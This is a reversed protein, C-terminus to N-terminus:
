QSSTTTPRIGIHPINAAKLRDNFAAVDSRMIADLRERQAGFERMFMSAVESQAATPQFDSETIGRGVGQLKSYLGPPYYFSDGASTVRPDFFVREVALLKRDLEDAEAIHSKWRAESQLASRVDAIQHRMIEIQDILDTMANVRNWIDLALTTQVRIGDESGLSNPDKKVVLPRTLETAGVRLKVTYTGPQVLPAFRGEIPFPRSGDARLAIEAHGEPSTRLQPRRTEEFKLDWWVRNVGAKKTGKLTRVVRGAPDAIELQVEGGPVSSLYYNLSAGYPPNHGVAAPPDNAEGMYMPLGPRTLFRYATRPEFLYASSSHATDDLQELPTIDDLIWFGRGYTAVVLDHFQEQITLWSVPAHPLNSQLPTWHDGDDFSAYLANETGLFLLGRRVPDEVICHAYSFVSHPIDAISKWTRGYDTTKYVYPNRDNMQHLDITVYATGATFRSPEIKTVTGWPPLNPLSKTVNTWTRGDDRTVHILGDNSGAWIVGKELPSEAIAFLVCYFEVSTNDPTLGGSSQQKTKDNTTLDPSIVRWTQGRDETVHVHQSGAYLRNPNHPSLAIPFTWQFRYKLDAIPWGGEPWPNVNRALGTRLDFHQLFGAQGTTWVMNADAPDAYTFGSESGGTWTWDGPLIQTGALSNSPGRHAPGDQRNGFVYYPVRNDTAVHYMQAIPLPTRLWSRGRNTSVNVYRDNAVVLRNANQPDIWMDHNDPWVERVQKSTAGGDISMHLELQTLFYVENPNDPLVAMRSYYHPRRNLTADRSVLAWNDGGDDSRWLVGKDATEILAYVRSSNSPAIALGIRGVPSEPLGQELRKWTAGGDRTMYLASGPGGSERGWGHIVLQWMGAFLIRPNHPDMVLDGAGTNEDVFLVREWTKGGDITRFVGREEQPGYSHGQSAAYVVNPDQPNVVIRSIRGTGDLGMHAFTKGADTSKYIGNGISINGRIFAEGTGVWITSADSPAVAIAGISLAPQDDFIPTWHVGGDNSKFVGGTAAGAYLTNPDGPVGAVAVVRNGQPGIHRYELAKFVGTGLSTSPATPQAPQTQSFTSSSAAVIAGALVIRSLRLIKRM